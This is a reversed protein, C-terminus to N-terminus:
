QMYLKGYTCELISNNRFLSACSWIAFCRSSTPKLLHCIFASQTSYFKNCRPTWRMVNCDIFLAYENSSHKCNTTITKDEEGLENTHALAYMEAVVDLHMSAKRQTATNKASKCRCVDVIPAITTGVFRMMCPQVNCITYTCRRKLYLQLDLVIQVSAMPISEMCM